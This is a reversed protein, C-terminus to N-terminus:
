KIPHIMRTIESEADRFCLQSKGRWREVEGDSLTVTKQYAQIESESSRQLVSLTSHTVTEKTENECEVVKAISSERNSADRFPVSTGEVDGESRDSYNVFSRGKERLNIM